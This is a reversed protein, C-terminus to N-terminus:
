RLASMARGFVWLGYASLAISLVLLTITTLLAGRAAQPQARRRAGFYIIGGYVPSLMGMGALSVCLLIWLDRWMIHTRASWLACVIVGLLTWVGLVRWAGDTWHSESTPEPEMRGSSLLKRREQRMVQM